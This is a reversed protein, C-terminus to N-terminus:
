IRLFRDKPPLLLVTQLMFIGGTSRGRLWGTRIDPRERPDELGM